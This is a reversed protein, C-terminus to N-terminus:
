HGGPYLYRFPQRILDGHGRLPLNGLVAAEARDVQEEKEIGVWQYFLPWMYHLPILAACLKDTVSVSCVVRTQNRKFLPILIIILSCTSVSLDLVVHLM